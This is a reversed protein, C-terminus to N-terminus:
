FLRANGLDSRPVDTGQRRVFLVTLGGVLAAAAAGAAVWVWARRYPRNEVTVEPPTAWAAAGPPSDASQPATPPAPTADQGPQGLKRELEAVQSEVESRNQPDPHTSLFRKYFFLAKEDAGLRRYAQAIDFLYNPDANLEYAKRYEAIAEEYLARDYYLTGREHHRQAEASASAPQAWAPAVGHRPAVFVLVAATLFAIGRL